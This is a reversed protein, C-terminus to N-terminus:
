LLSYIYEAMVSIQIAAKNSAAPSLQDFDVPSIQIHAIEPFDKIENSFYMKKTSKTKTDGPVFRRVRQTPDRHFRVLSVAFLLFLNKAVTM